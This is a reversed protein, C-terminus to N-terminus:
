VIPCSPCKLSQSAREQSSSLSAISQALFSTVSKAISSQHPSRKTALISGLGFHGLRHKGTNPCIPPSRARAGQTSATPLAGDRGAFGAVSM